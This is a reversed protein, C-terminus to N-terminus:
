GHRGGHFLPEPDELNQPTLMPFQRELLNLLSLFHSHLLIMSEPYREMLVTFLEVPRYPTDGIGDHNLDYGQYRDWANRRFSNSNMVSSNYSVDFTNGEFRNGEYDNADCDAVLKLAWGNRIFANGEFRIRSVEEQFVGTTNGVFRNRVVRSDKINKLLLGFAANGWNDEFLNDEMLIGTSYMVAVGSGNKRFINGSYRNGNSFMFHLGYRVNGESHNGAVTSNGTFELYIGDRHGRISNGTATMGNCKWFHIGNGNGSETGYLGTLDNGSIVADHAQAGYISFFNKEFRNSDIRTGGCGLLWIAAHERLYNVGVNRFCIGTVRVGDARITLITIGGGADLVPSGTGRLAVPKVIELGTERYIGSHILVQDGSDAAALAAAVTTFRQSPGVDLVTAASIGTLATALVLCLPHM